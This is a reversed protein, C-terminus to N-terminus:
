EEGPAKPYYRWHTVEDTWLLRGDPETWREVRKGRLITREYRVPKTHKEGNESKVAGLVYVSAYDYDTQFEPLKDEVSYFENERLYEAVENLVASVAYDSLSQEKKGSISEQAEYVKKLLSDM